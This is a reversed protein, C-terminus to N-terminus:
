VALRQYRAAALRYLEGGYSREESWATYAAKIDHEDDSAVAVQSCHDDWDPLPERCEGPEGIEPFAEAAVYAACLARWLSPLATAVDLHSQVIRFAHTGTMAHLATFGRTAAFWTVVFRAIAALDAVTTPSGGARLASTFRPDAAAAAMGRFILGRPLEYSRRPGYTSARIDIAPGFRNQRREDTDAFGLNLYADRWYVLAAAVERDDGAELGYAM